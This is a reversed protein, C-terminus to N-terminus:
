ALDMMRYPQLVARAGSATLANGSDAGRHEYLYAAVMKIAQRFVAPVNVAAGYGAQYRVEIGSAARTTQPPAGTLVLRAGAIDAIYGDTFASEVHAADYTVVADIACLPPYPLALAMQASATDAGERVGDWWGGQPAVPWRDLYLSYGRTVFAMGTADECMQRAAAIFAALSDDDADQTLRLFDKMEALSVPEEAPAQNQVLRYLSKSM